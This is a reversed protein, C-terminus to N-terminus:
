ALLGVVRELRHKHCIDRLVTRAADRNHPLAQLATLATQLDDLGIAPRECVLRALWRTAARDYRQDDQDSMVLCIALADALNVQPLEAAAARILHLNGKRLAHRFHTYPSGKISM